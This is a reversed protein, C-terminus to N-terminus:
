SVYLGISQLINGAGADTMDWTLNALADNMLAFSGLCIVSGSINFSGFATGTTLLTGSATLADTTACAAYGFVAAPMQAGATSITQLAPNGITAEQASSFFTVASYTFSPRLVVIAKTNAAAGNMGTISTESGALQKWKWSVRTVSVTTNLTISNATVSSWTGPTVDSPASGSGTSRQVLLGIDNAQIGAPLNCTSATSTSIGVLSLSPRGGNGVFMSTSFGPLFAEVPPGGNHGIGREEAPTLIRRHPRIIGPKKPTWLEPKPPLHLDMM